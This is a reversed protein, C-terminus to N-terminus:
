LLGPGAVRDLKLRAGNYQDIGNQMNMMIKPKLFVM